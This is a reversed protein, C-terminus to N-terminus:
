TIGDEARGIMRSEPKATKTEAKKKKKVPAKKSCKPKCNSVSSSVFKWFDKDRVKYDSINGDADVVVIRPGKITSRGSDDKDFKERDDLVYIKKGDLELEFEDHCRVINKYHAM